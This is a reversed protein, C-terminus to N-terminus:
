SWFQIRTSVYITDRRIISIKTFIELEEGRGVGGEWGRGRNGETQTGEGTHPRGPQYLDPVGQSMLSLGPVAAPVAVPITCTSGLTYILYM